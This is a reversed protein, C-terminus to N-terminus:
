AAKSQHRALDASFAVVPTRSNARAVSLALGAQAQLQEPSTADDSLAIGISVTLTGPDASDGTAYVLNDEVASRLREAIAQASQLSVNTFLFAFEDGDTRAVVDDKKISKRFVGALKKLLKNGAAAGYKENIAHFRDVDAVILASGTQPAGASYLAELSNAFAIRNPLNTLRDRLVAQQAANVGNDAAELTKAGEELKRSLETETVLFQTLATSMFETEAIVDSIGQGHDETLSRATAEIARLLTRKQALGLCIQDALERLIRVSEGHAKDAALGCHGTLRHRLGIEDLALQSPRPGLAALERALSGNHGFLAEHFLEYNRPMGRVQLMAMHQVVKETEGGGQAATKRSQAAMGNRAADQM